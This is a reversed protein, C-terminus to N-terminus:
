IGNKKVEKKWNFSIVINILIVLLIGIILGHLYISKSFTASEKYQKIEYYLYISAFLVILLIFTLLVSENSIVFEFDINANNIGIELVAQTIFISLSYSILLLIFM